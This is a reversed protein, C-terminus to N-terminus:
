WTPGTASWTWPAQGATGSSSASSPAVYEPRTPRPTTWAAPVTALLPATRGPTLTSAVPPASATPPMWRARKAWEAPVVAPGAAPDPTRVVRRPRPAPREAPGPHGPFTSPLVFAPRELLAPGAETTVSEPIHVCTTTSM